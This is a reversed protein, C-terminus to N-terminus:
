KAWIEEGVRGSREAGERRIIEEFEPEARIWGLINGLIGRVVALYLNKGCRALESRMQTARNTEFIGAWAVGPYTRERAPKSAPSGIELRLLEGVSFKRDRRELPLCRLYLILRPQEDRHERSCKSILEAAMESDVKLAFIIMRRAGLGSASRMRARGDIVGSGPNKKFEQVSFLLLLLAVLQLRRGPSDERRKARSERNENEGLVLGSRSRRNPSAWIEEGASEFQDSRREVKNGVSRTTALPELNFKVSLDGEEGESTPSGTERRLLGYLIFGTALAMGMLSFILAIAGALLEESEADEGTREAVGEIIIIGSQSRRRKATRQKAVVHDRARLGLIPKKWVRSAAREDSRDVIKDDINM